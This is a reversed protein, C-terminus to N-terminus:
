AVWALVNQTCVVWKMWAVMCGSWGRQKAPELFVTLLLKTNVMRVNVNLSAILFVKIRRKNFDKAYM